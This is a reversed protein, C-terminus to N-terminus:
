LISTPKGADNIAVMSFIGSVALDRQNTYMQEIFIQVQIKLSKNGIHIVSGHIDAFTGAPIPKQFDTKDLSVTVMKKRCFRTATIFAVEDMWNLATGGFLTNYHNTTDPFVCKIMKTESNKMLEQINKEQSM